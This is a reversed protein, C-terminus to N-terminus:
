ADPARMSGIVWFVSVAIRPKFLSFSFGRGIVAVTRLLAKEEIPLRDIRAALVEQVTLPLQIEPLPLTTPALQFDAGGDANRRLVGQDVLAQILEELFFPNGESKALLFAKLGKLGRERELCHQSCSKPRREGSRLRGCNPM